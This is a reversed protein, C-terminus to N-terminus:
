GAGSTLSGAHSGAGGIPATLPLGRLMRIAALYFDAEHSADKWVGSKPSRGRRLPRSRISRREHGTAYWGGYRHDVFQEDVVELERQWLSRYTAAPEILALLLLIKLAETQLWWSRVPVFLSYGSLSDPEAAPGAEIFGGYRDDWGRALVHDTLAKALAVADSVSGGIAQAAIPLRLAAQLPYGFREVTPVPRFDPYTVYYMSGQPTIFRETVVAYLETLRSRLREDPWVNHLTTFAGLLDSNVNADKLGVGHGLPEALGAGNEAPVDTTSHIPRGDRTAWGYYGGHIPDHLATDLWDFAETALEFAEPAGTLSFVEVAADILYATGHGHKTGGALPSGDPDVLWFWGGHQADHMTERLYRLGHLAIERWSGQEPYALGLRAATRTQRAQFELMRQQRGSARWRRDFDCLFGGRRTDVTRPFWTEVVHRLM